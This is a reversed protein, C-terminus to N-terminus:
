SGETSGAPEETDAERRTDVDGESDEDEATPENRGYSELGNLEEETILNPLIPQEVLVGESLLYDRLDEPTFGEVLVVNRGCECTYNIPRTRTLHWMEFDHIQPGNQRGNSHQTMWWLQLALTQAWRKERAKFEEDEELLAVLDGVSGQTQKAIRRNIQDPYIDLSKMTDTISKQLLSLTEIHNKRHSASAGPLMLRIREQETYLMALRLVNPRHVSTNLEPYAKLIELQSDAQYKALIHEIGLDIPSNNAQTVANSHAANAKASDTKYPSQAVHRGDVMDYLTKIRIRDSFEAPALKWIKDAKTIGELCQQVANKAETFPDKYNRDCEPSIFWDRIKLILLEIQAPTFDDNKGTGVSFVKVNPTKTAM